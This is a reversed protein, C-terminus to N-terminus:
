NFEIVLEDLSFLGSKERAIESLLDADFSGEAVLSVRHELWTRKSRLEILENKALIIDQEIDSLSLFGKANGM